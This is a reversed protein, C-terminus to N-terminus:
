GIEASSLPFGSQNRISEASELHETMNATSIPKIQDSSSILLCDVQGLWLHNLFIAPALRPHPKRLCARQNSQPPQPLNEPRGQRGQTGATPWPYLVLERPHATLTGVGLRRRSPGPVLNAQFSSDPDLLRRGAALPLPPPWPELGKKSINTRSGAQM